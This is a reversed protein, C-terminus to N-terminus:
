IANEAKKFRKILGHHYYEEDVYFGSILLCYNEREELIVLYRKFYIYHRYNKNKYQEIWRLPKNNCCDFKCDYNEIFYKIWKIRIMRNPDPEREEIKVYNKCTCHYFSEEKDNIKPVYRYKIPKRQYYINSDLYMERFICYLKDEYEKYKNWDPYEILEPLWRCNDEM